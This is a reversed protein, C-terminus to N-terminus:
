APAMALIRVPRVEVSGGGDLIPCGKAIEAAEGADTAKIVIFGSIVDKAEAFLGDTVVKAQGTVLKGSYELPQGPNTILGREGLDKMWAAWKQM